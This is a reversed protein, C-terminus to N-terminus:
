GVLVFMVLLNDRVVSVSVLGGGVWGQARAHGGLCNSRTSANVVASAISQLAVCYVAAAQGLPAETGRHGQRDSSRQQQQHQLHSEWGGLPQREQM